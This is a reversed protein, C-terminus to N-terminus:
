FIRYQPSQNLQSSPCVSTIDACRSKTTMDDYNANVIHIVAHNLCAYSVNVVGTPRCNLVNM